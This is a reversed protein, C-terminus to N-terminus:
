VWQMRRALTMGDLVKKSCRRCDLAVWAKSVVIFWEIMAETSLTVINVSSLVSKEHLDRSQQSSESECFTESKL